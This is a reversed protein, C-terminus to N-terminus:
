KECNQIQKCLKINRTKVCEFRPWGNLSCEYIVDRLEPSPPECKQSLRFLTTLLIAMKAHWLPSPPDSIKLIQAVDNISVRYVKHENPHGYGPILHNNRDHLYISVEDILRCRKM